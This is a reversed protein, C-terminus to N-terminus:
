FDLYLSVNFTIQRLKKLGGDPPFRSKRTLFLFINHLRASLVGCLGGDSCQRHRLVLSAGTGAPRPDRSTVWVGDGPPFWDGQVRPGRSLKAVADSGRVTWKETKAKLSKVGM